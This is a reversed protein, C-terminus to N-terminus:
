GYPTNFQGSKNVRYLGNFCTKNLFITRAAAEAESLTEWDLSRVEYFMESTNEYKNLHELVEDLNDAVQRYMNILEPNSDSIIANEPQLAFFLAGGGFFPEIYKNYSEPIRPLLEGLMQSKGGAWKLIPKAPNTKKTISSM